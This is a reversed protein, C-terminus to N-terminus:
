FYFFPFERFSCAKAKRYLEILHTYTKSKISENYLKENIEKFFKYDKPNEVIKLFKKEKLPNQVLSLNLNLFYNIDKLPCNCKFLYEGHWKLDSIINKLRYFEEFNRIELGLDLFRDGSVLFKPALNDFIYEIVSDYGYGGFGHLFAFGRKRFFLTLTYARPRIELKDLIKLDERLLPFRRNGIIKWFPLENDALYKFPKRKLGKLVENFRKSFDSNSVELVFERFEDTRSIESVKLIKLNINYLKFVWNIIFDSYNDLIKILDFAISFARELNDLLKTHTLNKLELYFGYLLKEDIKPYKEFILNENFKLLYIKHINFSNDIAYTFIEKREDHDAILFLKNGKHENLVIVKLLIGYYFIIPQHGSVVNEYELISKLSPKFYTKCSM